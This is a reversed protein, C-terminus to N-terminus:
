DIVRVPVNAYGAVNSMMVRRLGDEDVEYRPWRRGLEEVAVRSELRALAAGLCMHIGVGFGVAQTVPRRVDFRDPDDFFREDRTAAGTILIVPHGAKIGQGHLEIDRV